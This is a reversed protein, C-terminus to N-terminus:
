YAPSVARAPVRVALYGPVSLAIVAIACVLGFSTIAAIGEVNFVVPFGTISGLFHSGLLQGFLGFIAGSLCGLVLLMSSEGLLWRWLVAERYGHCKWAAIRERRQWIMSGMAGILALIAAILVLLRIQTMRELGQEALAFHLQERERATEVQLGSYPGLARQILERVRVPSAGHTTQIEYASPEGATWARAYDRSNLIIAGPPWGLNTILGALRLTIPRPSPLTFSQGVHLHHEGALAQTLVAWGGARVRADALALDHGRYQSPPVPQLVSAPQGRIQLRRQGWNLLSGRFLGLSRVGPLRSIATTNQAKFPITNLWSFTGRPTVWIDAAADLDHASAFLGNRLNAQTGHFEVIGMVAIAATAVIALSRVRTQPMELETAALASGVGNLANALRRFLRLAVDFLFALLLMLAVVLTIDGIVAETGNGALSAASVALCTAGLLLRARRWSTARSTKAAHPRGGALMEFLPWFAGAGAAALGAGVALAVSEWTIIRGNGIPFAVTLYGPQAHFVLLSLLDGLALGLACALVGIVAADFLLIEVIMPQTAGHPLLDRILKRRSPVTILIANLALMFGVVASIGSFLSESESQPEVALSFLRTDFTSPELNVNWRTALRALASRVSAARTPTYRVFVRNLRGQAGILKQTYELSSVAIPSDALGGIEGEGLTAGVLTEVFRAGLQLQVVVLSRAGVERAL